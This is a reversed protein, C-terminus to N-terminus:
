NEMQQKTHNIVLEAFAEAKRTESEGGWLQETWLGDRGLNYQISYGAQQALEIVQQRNIM